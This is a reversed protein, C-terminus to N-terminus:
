AEDEGYFFVNAPEARGGAANLAEAVAEQTAVDPCVALMCGGGGAGMQKAGTAGSDIAVQCLYNLKDTAAGIVNEQAQQLTMLEGLRQLDCGNELQARGELVIGHVADFADLYVPNGNQLEQKVRNLVKKAERPECSDGIVLPICNVNLVDVRPQDGTAIFTVGGHAISYQDMRGCMIGLIDHEAEYAHEAIQDRTLDLGFLQNLGSIFGVSVAASTSLGAGIPLDVTGVSADFGRIRGDDIYDSLSKLCAHWYRLHTDQECAYCRDVDDIPFTEAEDPYDKSFFSALGDDRVNMDFHLFKTITAAIVPKGALDIKDGFLCIRGPIDFSLASM